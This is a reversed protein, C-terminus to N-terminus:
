QETPFSCSPGMTTPPNRTVVKKMTLASAKMIAPTLASTPPDTIEDIAYIHDEYVKMASGGGTAAAHRKLERDHLLRQDSISKEVIRERKYVGKAQKVSMEKSIICSVETALLEWMRMRHSNSGMAGVIASYYQFVFCYVM